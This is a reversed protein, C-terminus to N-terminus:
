TMFAVQFGCVFFGVTLLVYSRHGLAESLAQGFTQESVAMRYGGAPARLGIALFPIVLMIVALIYLADQWGYTSIFMQGLPAFVFQGFSGAAMGIGSAWSRSEAPVLKGFAA